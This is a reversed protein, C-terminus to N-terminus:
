SHSVSKLMKIFDKWQITKLTQMFFKLNKKEDSWSKASFVYNNVFNETLSVVQKNEYNKVTIDM